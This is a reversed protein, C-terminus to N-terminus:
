VYCFIVVVLSTKIQLDNKIKRKTIWYVVNERQRQEDGNGRQKKEGGEEQAGPM